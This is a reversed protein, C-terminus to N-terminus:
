RYLVEILSVSTVLVALWTLGGLLIPKLGAKKIQEIHVGLGIAVLAITMFIKSTQSLLSTVAPPLTVISSFLVALVFFVVFMPITQRIQTWSIAVKTEAQKRQQYFKYYIMGITLPVILLTRVLKVLTAINGAEDSWAFATAVVSATDNVASGALIGYLQKTYGLSAGITPLVLLALMSFVFMTTISVAIDEDKAELIPATAAIASGGCISTGIGLLLSLKWEFKFLKSLLLSTLLSVLVVAILIIFIEAGVELIIRLSLNFGLLVIGTKLLYSSIFKVIKQNLQSYLPSHRAFAGILIAIVSSGLLPISGGIFLAAWTALVFFLITTM